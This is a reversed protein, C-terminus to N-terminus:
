LVSARMGYLSVVIVQTKAHAHQAQYLFDTIFKRTHM